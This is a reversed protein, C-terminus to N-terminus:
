PRRLRPRDSLRVLELEQARHDLAAYLGVQQHTSPGFHDHTFVSQLTRDEYRPPAGPATPVASILQDAYWLQVTTQAGIWSSGASGDGFFPTNRPTLMTQTQFDFAYLGSAANIAAIRSRVEDPGYSGDQYNFGNAAGDSSTVDFKVLHIHQGVIDTPTRVQFDDLEYYGPLLNTLWYEVLSGSNARFFLPEPARRGALVDSVDEWLSTIRQQPYHWGKKNFVVDLQIDAAKYTFTHKSGGPDRFDERDLYRQERPSLAGQVQRRRLRENWPNRAPNAFPAGPRRRGGNTLFEGASGDPLDTPHTGLEHYAMAAQEVPTGCDPLQQAFLAVPSTTKDPNLSFFDRSFDFINEQHYLEADSAKNLVVHRPLGGDLPQGSPDHAFDLPPQPARRGAIGPIFFPYGPNKGGDREPHVLEVRRSLPVQAAPGATAPGDCPPPAVAIRVEPPVPAMPIAPLPVIAPIPTGRAIEGDPLARSGPAPRDIGDDGREMKTGSEFVDHVRWLAWLGAAFHPYFHCHFISDGPTLNRNGSGYIMELTFGDGPTITQSDLLKSETSAPSRLWQHAHQHHVHVVNVGGHMVRFKVRDNLYSHYM